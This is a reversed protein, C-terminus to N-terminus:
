FCLLLLVDALLYSPSRDFEEVILDYAVKNFLLPGRADESGQIVGGGSCVCIWSSRILAKDLPCGTECTVWMELGATCLEYHLM